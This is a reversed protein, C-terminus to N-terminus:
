PAEASDDATRAPRTVPITVHPSRCIAAFAGREDLLGIAARTREGPAGLLVLRQGIWQSVSFDRPPSRERAGLQASAAYLRIILRTESGVRLAAKARAMAEASIEWLALAWDPDRVLLDLRGRTNERSPNM